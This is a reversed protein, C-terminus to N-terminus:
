LKARFLLDTMKYMRKPVVYFMMIAYAYIIVAIWNM